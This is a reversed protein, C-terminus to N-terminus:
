AEDGGILADITGIASQVTQQVGDLTAYTSLDVEAAILAIDAATFYDVGKVPTYGDAGCLSALWEQQTGEFGDDLALEYASKGDAGDAGGGGGSKLAAVDALLSDIVDPTAPESAAPPAAAFSGVVKGLRKNETCLVYNGAAGIGRFSVILEGPAALVEHPVACVATEMSVSVSVSGNAFVAIRTLGDWEPAFSCSLLVSNKCGVTIPEYCLGMIKTSHIELHIM